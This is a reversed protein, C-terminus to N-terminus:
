SASGTPAWFSAWFRRTSRSCRLRASPPPLDGDYLHDGVYGFLLPAAFPSPTATQAEVLRVAGAEIDKMLGLLSDMDYVDQLCERATEALLPFDGERRAAELLQGARLRQQWLPARKGPTTPSMILARGRMRSVTGRVASDFGGPGARHARARRLRIGFLEAGPLLTEGMPIRVLIGDDTALTQPDFGRTRVIRDSVAMAWPEHVRRGYPSHLIVRWDGQEDECREVVLTRDDPVSGRLPASPAFWNWLTASRTGMSVTPRSAHPWNPPLASEGTKM